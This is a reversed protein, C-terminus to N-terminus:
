RPQGLRRDLHKVARVTGLRLEYQRTRMNSRVRTVEVIAEPIPHTMGNIIRMLFPARYTRLRKTWYPTIARYETTKARSVIKSFFERKINVVFM